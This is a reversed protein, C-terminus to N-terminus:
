SGSGLVQHQSGQIKFRSGLSQFSYGVGLFWKKVGLLIFLNFGIKGAVPLSMKLKISFKLDNQM